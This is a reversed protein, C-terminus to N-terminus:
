KSADIDPLAEAQTPLGAMPYPSIRAPMEAPGPSASPVANTRDALGTRDPYHRFLQVDWAPKLERAWIVKQEDIRGPEM